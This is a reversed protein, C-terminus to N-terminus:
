SKRKVLILDNRCWVFSCGEIYYYSEETRGTILALKGLWPSMELGIYASDKKYATLDDRVKVLDGEHLIEDEDKREMLPETESLERTSFICPIEQHGFMRYLLFTIYGDMLVFNQDLIIPSVKSPDKVFNKYKQLLKEPSPPCEKFLPPVIIKSIKMDVSSCTKKYVYLVPKFKRINCPFEDEFDVRTSDNSAVGRVVGKATLTTVQDGKNIETDDPVSFWYVKQNIDEDLVVPVITIPLEIM